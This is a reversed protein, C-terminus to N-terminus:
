SLESGIFLTDRFAHHFYPNITYVIRSFARKKTYWFKTYKQEGKFRLYSNTSNPLPLVPSNATDHLLSLVLTLPLIIILGLEAAGRGLM